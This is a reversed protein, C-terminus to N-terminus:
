QGNDVDFLDGAQQEAIVRMGLKAPLYCGANVAVGGMGPWVAVLWPHTLQAHEAM